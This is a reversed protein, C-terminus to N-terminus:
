PVAVPRLGGRGVSGRVLTRTQDGSGAGVGPSVIRMSALRAFSLSVGRRDDFPALKGRRATTGPAFEQNVIRPLASM